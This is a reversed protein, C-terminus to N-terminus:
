GPAARPRRLIRRVFKGSSRGLSNCAANRAAFIVIANYTMHALVCPALLGTKKFLWATVIGLLGVPLWSIPPHYIAFFGASGMMARWGHWERDLARYLLGRFLFEEAPPALYIALAALWWFHQPSTPALEPHHRLLEQIAPLRVLLHQYGAGFLGLLMGAGIGYGVAEGTMRL